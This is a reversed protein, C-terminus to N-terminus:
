AYELLILAQLDDDSLDMNLPFQEKLKGVLLKSINWYNSDNYFTLETDNFERVLRTIFSTLQLFEANNYDYLLAKIKERLIKKFQVDRVMTMEDGALPLYKDIVRESRTDYSNFTALKEIYKKFDSNKFSKREALVKEDSIYGEYDQVSEIESYLSDYLTSSSIEAKPLRNDIFKQILGIIANKYNDVSLQQQSIYFHKWVDAKIDKLEKKIKQKASKQIEPTFKAFPIKADDFDKGKIYNEPRLFSDTVFYYDRAKTFDISHKLLKGLISNKIKGNADEVTALLDTPRWYDGKKTKVQYFDINNGEISADIIVIDEHYDMVIMYDRGLQELELMKYLAWNKQYAFRNSSSSGSNDDPAFEIMQQVATETMKKKAMVM